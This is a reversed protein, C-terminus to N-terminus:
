NEGRVLYFWGFLCFIFYFLIFYFLILFRDGKLPYLMKIYTQKRHGTSSTLDVYLRTHVNSLQLDKPKSTIVWPRVIYSQSAQFKGHQRPQGPVRLSKCTGSEQVGLNLTHVGMGPEWGWISSHVEQRLGPRHCVVYMCSLTNLRFGPDPASLRSIFVRKRKLSVPIQEIQIVCM